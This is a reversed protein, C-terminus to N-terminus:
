PLGGNELESLEAPSMGQEHAADFLSLGSALREHRRQTGEDIRKAHEATIEGAGHCRFCNYWGATCHRRGNNDHSTAFAHIRKAGQCTPCIAM